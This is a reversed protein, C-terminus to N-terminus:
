PKNSTYMFSLLRSLAVLTCCSLLRQPSHCSPCHPITSSALLLLCFLPITPRSLPLSWSLVIFSVPRPTSGGGAVPAIRAAAHAQARQATIAAISPTAHVALPTDFISALHRRQLGELSCAVPIRSSVFFYVLFSICLFLRPRAAAAAAAAVRNRASVKFQAARLDSAASTPARLGHATRGPAQVLPLWTARAQHDQIFTRRM